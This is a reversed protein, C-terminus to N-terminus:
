ASRKPFRVLGRHEYLRDTLRITLAFRGYRRPEMLIFPGADGAEFEVMGHSDHMELITEIHRHDSFVYCRETLLIDIIEETEEDFHDM